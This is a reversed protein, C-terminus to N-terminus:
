GCRHSALVEYLFERWVAEACHGAHADSEDDADRILAIVRFDGVIHRDPSAHDVIAVRGHSALRTLHEEVARAPARDGLRAALETVFLASHPARALMVCIEGGVDPEGM